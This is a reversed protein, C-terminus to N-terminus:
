LKREAYVILTDYGIQVRSFRLGFPELLTIAAALLPQESDPTVGIAIRGQGEYSREGIYAAFNALATDTEQGEPMHQLADIVTQFAPIFREQM